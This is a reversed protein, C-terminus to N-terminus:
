SIVALAEAVWEKLPRRNMAENWGESAMQHKSLLCNLIVQYVQQASYGIDDYSVSSVEDMVKRIVLLKNLFKVTRDYAVYTTFHIDSVLNLSRLFENCRHVKFREDLNQVVIGKDNTEIIFAPLDQNSTDIRMAIIDNAGINDLVNLYKM